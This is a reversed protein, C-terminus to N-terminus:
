TLRIFKFDQSFRIEIVRIIIKMGTASDAIINRLSILREISGNNEAVLEETDCGDAVKVGAIRVKSGQIDQIGKREGVRKAIASITFEQIHDKDNSQGNVKSGTTIGARQNDVM